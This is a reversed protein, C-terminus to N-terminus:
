VESSRAVQTVVDSSCRVQTVCEQSHVTIRERSFRVRPSQDTATKDASHTATRTVNIKV